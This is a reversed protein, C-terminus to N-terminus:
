LKGHMKKWFYIYSIVGPIGVWALVIVTTIMEFNSVTWTGVLYLLVLPLSIYGIIDLGVLVSSVIGIILISANFITTIKLTKIRMDDGAVENVEIGLLKSVPVELVEAM